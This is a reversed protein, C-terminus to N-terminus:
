MSLIVRKALIHFALHSFVFNAKQTEDHFHIM